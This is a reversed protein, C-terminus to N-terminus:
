IHILSLYINITDFHFGRLYFEYCVELTTLLNQEVATADKNNEIEKIKRKVADMGACCYEADFAKARVSFFTAYFALPEHVKFWAIRFAMMVYAVAHAKPFLYAIKKCSGIYWDPVGHEKMEEEAGEPLGRGKRVAEMIKFARKEPMGCSILYIRDRICM